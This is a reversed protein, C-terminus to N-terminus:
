LHEDGMTQKLKIDNIQTFKYQNQEAITLADPHTTRQMISASRFSVVSWVVAMILILIFSVLVLFISDFRFCAFFRENSHLVLDNKGLLYIVFSMSGDQTKRTGNDIISFIRSPVILFPQINALSGNSPPCHRINLILCMLAFIDVNYLASTNPLTFNRKLQPGSAYFITRMSNIQNDYGHNGHKKNM